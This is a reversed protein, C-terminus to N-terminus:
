LGIWSAIFQPIPLKNTVFTLLEMDFKHVAPITRDLLFIALYPVNMAIQWRWKYTLVRWIKQAFSRQKENLAEWRQEAFTKIRSLLSVRTLASNSQM